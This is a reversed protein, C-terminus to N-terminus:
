ERGLHDKLMKKTVAQFQEENITLFKLSQQQLAFYFVKEGNMIKFLAEIGHDKIDMFYGFQAQIGPMDDPTIENQNLLLALTHDLLKTKMERNNM